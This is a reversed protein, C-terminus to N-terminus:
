RCSKDEQYISQSHQSGIDITREKKAAIQVNVAGTLITGALAYGRSKENLTFLEVFSKLLLSTLDIAILSNLRPAAVLLERESIPLM